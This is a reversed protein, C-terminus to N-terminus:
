RETARYLDYRVVGLPDILRIELPASGVLVKGKADTLIAGIEARLPDQALTFDKGVASVLAQVAGIPRATRAFVRMQGPGFRITAGLDKGAEKFEGAPGGLVADYVPRGDAPLKLTAVGPKIANMGGLQDDFSSNVAFLYEIDGQAQRSVTVQPNDCDVEPK